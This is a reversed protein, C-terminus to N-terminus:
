RAPADRVEEQRWRAILVLWRTLSLVAMRRFGAKEIGRISPENSEKCYIAAAAAQGAYHARLHRLMRAYIGRGRDAEATWCDYILAYPEPLRMARATGLEYEAQIERRLGSWAIHVPRGQERWVHVHDGARLRAFLRQIDTWGYPTQGQLILGALDAFRDTHIECGAPLPENGPECPAHFVIVARRAYFLRLWRAPRTALSLCSHAAGAARSGLRRLRRLASLLPGLRRRLPRLRRAFPYLSTRWGRDQRLIFTQATQNAFRAKFAEDGITFDLIDTPENRLSLLLNRLLVEGPSEDWLDIHFSPKYWYYKRGHIFGFHFAVPMRDLTLVAFRLEERAALDRILGTMARRPEVLRLPSNQGSAARRVAQQEFFNDLHPATATFDRFVEFTVAGKRALGKAHRVLSKKATLQTIRAEKGASFDICPCPHARTEWFRTHLGSEQLAQRLLSDDRVNVLLLRRWPASSTRLASLMLRLIETKREPICLLDHYDAYGAAIFELNDRRRGLPLLGILRGNEFVAPALPALGPDELGAATWAPGYFSEPRPHRDLLRQWDDALARIEAASALLACTPQHSPAPM